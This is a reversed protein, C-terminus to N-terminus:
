FMVHNEAKSLNILCKWEPEPSCPRHLSHRLLNLANNMKYQSPAHLAQTALFCHATVVFRWM